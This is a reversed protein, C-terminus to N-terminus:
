EFSMPAPDLVSFKGSQVQMVALGREVLGTDRFRFIGNAPGSFGNADEIVDRGFGMQRTALTASLAVVDYALSAIRPPKYGYTSIFRQEFAEYLMPPSSALWAGDLNVQRLLDRDDWVGTGIFQVSRSTINNAELASLIRVLNDSGEPLLLAEFGVRGGAADQKALTTVDQNITAGNPSYRVVPSLTRGLLKAVKETSAIVRRGYEDNPALIALRNIDRRFAYGAIRKAQEDPNFGVTYVGDGAVQPNNSFSIISMAGSKALPKIAEVEAGFLPGIILQAGEKVAEAAAQRAGAPTGKTDKTILEVQTTSQAGSLAAYKDFLALVGADQLAKGVTAAQGSLPVLFGVKIKTTSAPLASTEISDTAPLQNLVPMQKNAIDPYGYPLAAPREQVPPADFPEPEPACSALLLSAMMMGISLRWGQAM